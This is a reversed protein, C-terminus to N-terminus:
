RRPLEKNHKALEKSISVAKKSDMFGWIKGAKMNNMKLLIQAAIEVDIQSLIPGAQEPPTSEYVKALKTINADNVERKKDLGKQIEAKVAELELLKKEIEKKVSQLNERKEEIERNKKDFEEEKKRAAKVLENLITEKETLLRMKERVKSEADELGESVTESRVPADPEAHVIEVAQLEVFSGKEEKHFNMILLFFAIVSLVTITLPLKSMKLMVRKVFPLM